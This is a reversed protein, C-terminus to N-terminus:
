SPTQPPLPPYGGKKKVRDLHEFINNCCNELDVACDDYGPVFEWGGIFVNGKCDELRLDFGGGGAKGSEM